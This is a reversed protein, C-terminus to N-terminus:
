HQRRSPLTRFGAAATPPLQAPRLTLSQSIDSPSTTRWRRTTSNLSHRLCGPTSKGSAVFSFDTPGEPANGTPALYQNLAATVVADVSKKEASARQKALAYTTEDLKIQTRIM